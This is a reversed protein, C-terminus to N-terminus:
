STQPFNMARMFNRGPDLRNDLDAYRLIFERQVAAMSDTLLIFNSLSHGYNETPPFRFKGPSEEMNSHGVM